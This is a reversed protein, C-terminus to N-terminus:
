PYPCIFSGTISSFKCAVLVEQFSKVTQCIKRGSELFPTVCCQFVFVRCLEVVDYHQDSSFYFVLVRLALFLSCIPSLQSDSLGLSLRNKLCLYDFSHSVLLGSTVRCNGFLTCAVAFSWVDLSRFLLPIMRPLLVIKISICWSSKLLCLYLSYHVSAIKFDASYRIILFYM